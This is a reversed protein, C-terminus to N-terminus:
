WCPLTHAILSQKAHDPSRLASCGRSSSGEDTWQDAAEPNGMGQSSGLTPQATAAKFSSQTGLHCHPVAALALSPTPSGPNRTSVGVGQTRRDGWAPRLTEVRSPFLAATSPLAREQQGGLLTLCPRWLRTRLRNTGSSWRPTTSKSLIWLIVFTVM